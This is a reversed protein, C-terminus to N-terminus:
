HAGSFFELYVGVVLCVIALALVWNPFTFWWRLETVSPEKWESRM